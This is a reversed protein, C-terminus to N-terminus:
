QITKREKITRSEPGWGQYQVFSSWAARSTKLNQLKFASKNLFANQLQKIDKSPNLRDCEYQFENILHSFFLNGNIELYSTIHLFSSPLSRFLAAMQAPDNM